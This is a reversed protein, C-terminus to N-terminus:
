MSKKKKCHRCPAKRWCIRWGVIGNMPTRIEHSVNAIFETKARNAQEAQNRAAVLDEALRTQALELELSELLTDRYNDASKLLAFFFFVYMIALSMNMSTPNVIGNLWVPVTMCFAYIRMAPRMPSLVPMAGVTLGSFVLATLISLLMPSSLMLYSGGLGWLVSSVTVGALHLRRWYGDHHRAPNRQYRRFVSLRYLAFGCVSLWWLGLLWISHESRHLFLLVTAAVISVFQGAAAKRYSLATTRHLIAADNATM